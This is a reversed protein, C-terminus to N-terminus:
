GQGTVHQRLIRNVEIRHAEDTDTRHRLWEAIDADLRITISHHEARTGGRVAGSWDLVEPIDSTDIDAEPRAALRELRARQEDSIVMKGTGENVGRQSAPVSSGSWTM